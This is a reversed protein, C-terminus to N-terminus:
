INKKTIKWVQSEPSSATEAKGAIMEEFNNKTLTKKKNKRSNHKM